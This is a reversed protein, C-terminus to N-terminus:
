DHWLVLPVDAHRTSLLLHRLWLTHGPSHWPTWPVTSQQIFANWSTIVSQCTQLLFPALMPPLPSVSLKRKGREETSERGSFHLACGMVPQFDLDDHTMLYYLYAYYIYLITAFMQTINFLLPWVNLLTCELSTWSCFEFYFFVREYMCLLSPTQQM